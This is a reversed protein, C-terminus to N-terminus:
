AGDGPAARPAAGLSVTAANGRLLTLQVAQEQGAALLQVDVRLPLQFATLLPHRYARRQRLQRFLEPQHEQQAIPFFPRDLPHRLEEGQRYGGHFPPEVLAAPQEPLSQFYLLLSIM